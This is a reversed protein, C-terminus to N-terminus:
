PPFENISLPAVMLKIHGKLDNEFKRCCWEEDVTITHLRGLHKFRKAYEAVSMNGQVLKLFEVEKVYRINDLYYEDLFVWTVVQAKEELVMKMSAWWHEAEGTLMYISYALKNEDSCRKADFFREMDNM